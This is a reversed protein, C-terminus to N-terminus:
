YFGITSNTAALNHALMPNNPSPSNSKPDLRTPSVKEGSASVDFDRPRTPDYVGYEDVHRQPTSAFPREHAAKSTHRTQRQQAPSPSPSLSGGWRTRTSPIPRQSPTQQTPRAGPKDPTRPVGTSISRQTSKPAQTSPPSLRSHPRAVGVGSSPTKRSSTGTPQAKAQLQAMEAKLLALELEKQAMEIKALLLASKAETEDGDEGDEGYDEYEEVAVQGPAHCTVAQQPRASSAVQHGTRAASTKPATAFKGGHSQRVPQPTATIALPSAAQRLSRSKERWKGSVGSTGLIRDYEDLGDSRVIGPGMRSSFSDYIQRQKSNVKKCIQQHKALRDYNFKRGCLGCEGRGDAVSLVEGRDDGQSGAGSRPAEVPACSRLHDAFNLKIIQQSCHPCECTTVGLKIKCAKQHHPLSNPFFMGGCLSCPIARRHM